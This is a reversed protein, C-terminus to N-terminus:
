KTEGEIQEEIIMIVKYHSWGVNHKIALDLANRGIKDQKHIDAGNNILLQAIDERGLIAAFHLPTLGDYDSTNIDEGNKLCKLIRFESCDWAAKLINDM